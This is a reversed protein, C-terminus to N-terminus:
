APRLHGKALASRLARTLWGPPFGMMWGYTIPLAATGTLGHSRLMAALARAGAWKLASSPALQNATATPTAAMMARSMVADMTPSNRREYAPSWGDMRSDRKTPTPLPSFQPALRDFHLAESITPVRDFRDQDSTMRGKHKRLVSGRPAPNATPTGMMRAHPRNSFLEALGSAKM